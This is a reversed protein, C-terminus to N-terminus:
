RQASLEFREAAIRVFFERELPLKENEKLVNCAEMAAWDSGGRQV